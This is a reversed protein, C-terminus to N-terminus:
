LYADGGQFSVRPLSSLVRSRSARLSVWVRSLHYFILMVAKFLFERSLLFFVVALLAFLFGFAVLIISSM